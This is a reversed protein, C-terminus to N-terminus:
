LRYIFNPNERDTLDTMEEVSTQNLGRAMREKNSKAMSWRAILLLVICIVNSAIYALMGGLYLPKQWDVMM